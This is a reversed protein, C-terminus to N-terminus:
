RLKRLKSVSEMKLEKTDVITSMLVLSNETLTKIRYEMEIGGMKMKFTNNVVNIDCSFSANGSVILKGDPTFEWFADALPADMPKQIGNDIFGASDVQWKGVLLLPMKSEDVPHKENYDELNEKTVSHLPEKNEEVSPNLNCSCITLSTCAIFFYFPKMLTIKYLLTILLSNREAM